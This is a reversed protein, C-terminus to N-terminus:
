GHMSITFDVKNLGVPVDIEWGQEWLGMSKILFALSFPFLPFDPVKDRGENADSNFHLFFSFFCQPLHLLSLIAPMKLCM